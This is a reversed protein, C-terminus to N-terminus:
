FDLLSKPFDKLNTLKERLNPQYSLSRKFREKAENIKNQKFFVHGIQFQLRGFDPYIKEALLFNQMAREYSGLKFYEVGLNYYTPFYQQDLRRNLVKKNLAMHYAEIAKKHQNTDSYFVGLNHYPRWLNPYKEICDLWLTESTRWVSNRVYTSYGLSIFIGISCLIIVNYIMRNHSFHFILKIMFIVPPIFLLM